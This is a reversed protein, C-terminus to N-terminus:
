FGTAGPGAAGSGSQRPHDRRFVGTRASAPRLDADPESGNALDVSGLRLRGAPGGNAAAVSDAEAVESVAARNAGTGTFRLDAATEGARRLFPLRQRAGRLRDRAQGTATQGM